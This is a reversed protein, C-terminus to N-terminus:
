ADATGAAIDTIIQPASEKLRAALQFIDKVPDRLDGQSVLRDGQTCLSDTNKSCFIGDTESRYARMGTSGSNIDVNAAISRVARVTIKLKIDGNDVAAINECAHYHARKLAVLADLNEALGKFIQRFARDIEPGFERLDLFALCYLAMFRWATLQAIHQCAVSAEIVVTYTYMHRAKLIRRSDRMHQPIIRYRIGAKDNGAYVGAEATQVASHM